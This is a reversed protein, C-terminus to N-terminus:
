VQDLDGVYARLFDHPRTSGANRAKALSMRRVSRLGEALLENARAQIWGTVATDAPGGNPPNYKLGGDVPPNHSPTIVIGDALGTTRGRNHVLIAHSVAPTPTFEGDASVRTEVGNGALVELVSEFAPQSLAHTDIGVFLPGDIGKAQRYECVAQSIALVHWENFSRDIASGRHGSTGFAVSQAAVSPDPRLDAYAALLRPVDILLSPPPPKGALPSITKSM